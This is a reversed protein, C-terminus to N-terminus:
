TSKEGLNLQIFVFSEPFGTIRKCLIYCKFTEALFFFIYFKFTKIFDCYSIKNQLHFAIFYDAVHLSRSFALFLTLKPLASNYPPVDQLISFMAM